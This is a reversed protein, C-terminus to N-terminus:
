DIEEYYYSYDIGKIFNGKEQVKDTLASFLLNRIHKDHLPSEEMARLYEKKDILSWDVVKGIRKKLMENLWIRTARGNGEMFPHAINMEIYKSIIEDFSGEPMDSIKKLTDPLYLCNAFMFGNKSINKDRIQGAFDYLGEFLFAHIKQLGKIDGEEFTDLLGNEFLEYARLRSQEDIPNALGKIWRTFEIKDDCRLYSLLLILGDYDMVDTMYSKGDFSTLKAQKTSSFLDKHRSKFTNWYKRPNETKILSAVVDVVSYFWKNTKEEWVSRVPVDSFYRISTKSKM